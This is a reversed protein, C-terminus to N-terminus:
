IDATPPGFSRVPSQLQTEPDIRARSVHASLNTPAMQELRSATLVAGPVAGLVAGPVVLPMLRLVVASAVARTIRALERRDM